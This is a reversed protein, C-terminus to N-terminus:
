KGAEENLASRGATSLHLIGPFREEVLKHRELVALTSKTFWSRRPEGAPYDRKDIMKLTSIQAKTLKVM